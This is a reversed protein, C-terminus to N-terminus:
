CLKLASTFPGAEELMGEVHDLIVLLLCRGGAVLVDLLLGGLFGPSLPPRFFSVGCAADSSQM